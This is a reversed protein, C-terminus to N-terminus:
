NTSANNSRFFTKAFSLEQIDTFKDIKDPSLKDFDDFAKSSLLDFIKKYGFYCLHIDKRKDAFELYVSWRYKNQEHLKDMHGLDFKPPNFQSSMCVNNFKSYYRRNLLPSIIIIYIVYFIYCLLVLGWVKFLGMITEVVEM